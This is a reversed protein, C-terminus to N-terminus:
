LDNEKLTVNDHKLKFLIAEDLDDFDRHEVIYGDSGDRHWTLRKGVIESLIAVFEQNACECEAEKAKVHIEFYFSGSPSQHLAQWWVDESFAPPIRHFDNSYDHRRTATYRAM